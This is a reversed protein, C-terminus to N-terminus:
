RGGGDASGQKSPEDKEPCPFAKKLLNMVISLVWLTLITGGMGVIMMTMGFTVRDM